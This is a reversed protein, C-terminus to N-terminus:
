PTSAEIIERLIMVRPRYLWFERPSSGIELTERVIPTDGEMTTVEIRHSAPDVTVKTTM